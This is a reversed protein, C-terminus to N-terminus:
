THQIANSSLLAPMVPATRHRVQARTKVFRPRAKPLTETLSVALAAVIVPVVVAMFGAQMSAFRVDIRPLSYRM